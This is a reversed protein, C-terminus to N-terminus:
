GGAVQISATGDSSPAAPGSAIVRLRPEDLLLWAVRPSAARVGPGTSTGVGSTVGAIVRLFWVPRSPPGKAAAAGADADLSAITKPWALVGELPVLGLKAAVTFPNARRGTDLRPEVLPTLAYDLGDSWTVRDVIFGQDCTQPDGGCGPGPAFRGVLAVPVTSGATGGETAALADPIRVGIPITVHLHTPRGGPGTNGLTGIPAEYITGRRECWPGAAGLPADKCALDVSDIDMFGAVVVVDPTTGALRAALVESPRLALM